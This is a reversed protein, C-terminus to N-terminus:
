SYTYANLQDTQMKNEYDAYGFGKAYVIKDKEVVAVAFGACNWDKLVRNFTSDLGAFRKDTTQSFGKQLMLLLLITIAKKM